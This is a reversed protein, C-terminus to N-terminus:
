ENNEINEAVEREPEPAEHVEKQIVDDIVIQENEDLKYRPLEPLEDLSSIGFMKMFNTTVSYMTPRGPADLRGVEEILNYELLKYITGDSGVGRIAEIQARTIKPNYAIISLTELAANSITPKTRNDFLPYIYDYYEKKTCLQYGDEVKILELGSDEAEYKLKMNQMIKEIDESGLELANMIEKIKIERGTSFLMAEIIAQEKVLNM